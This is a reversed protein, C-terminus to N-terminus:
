VLGLMCAASPNLAMIMLRLPLTPAAAVNQSPLMGSSLRLRAKGMLAKTEGDIFHSNFVNGREYIGNLPTFLICSM